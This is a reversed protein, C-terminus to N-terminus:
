NAERANLWVVGDNETAGTIVWSRRSSTHPQKFRVGTSDTVHLASAYNIRLRTVARLLDTFEGVTLDFITAPFFELAIESEDWQYESFRGPVATVDEIMVRIQHGPSFTDLLTALQGRNLAGPHMDETPVPLLDAADAAALFRTLLPGSDALAPDAVLLAEIRPDSNM